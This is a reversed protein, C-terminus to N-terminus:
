LEVFQELPQLSGVSEPLIAVAGVVTLDLALGARNLGGHGVGQPLSVEVSGGPDPDYRYPVVAGAQPPGDVDVHIVAEVVGLKLLLDLADAGWEEDEPALGSAGVQVHEGVFWDGGVEDLLTQALTGQGQTVGPGLHEGLLGLQVAVVADAVPDVHRVLVGLIRDPM